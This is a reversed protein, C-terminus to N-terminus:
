KKALDKNEKVGKKKMFMFILVFIATPIIFQLAAGTLPNNSYGYYKSLTEPINKFPNPLLCTSFGSERKCPVLRIFFSLLTIVLGIMAGKNLINLIKPKKM